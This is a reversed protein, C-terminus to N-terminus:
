KSRKTEAVIKLFNALIKRGDHMDSGVGSSLGREPHFAVGYVPKGAFRILQAESVGSRALNVFCDPLTKVEEYHNQLVRFRGSSSAVGHLIQDDHLVELSVIGKEALADRPYREPYSGALKPDIFGVTGDFALTLFQHGGCVGLVPVNTEQILKRVFKKALGLGSVSEGRYMYWPTGQPSLIVFDLRRAVPLEASLDSFHIYAITVTTGRLDPEENPLRTTFVDRLEGYRSPDPGTLELDILLGHLRKERPYLLLVSV